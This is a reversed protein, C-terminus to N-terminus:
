GMFYGIKRKLACEQHHPLVPNQPGPVMCDPYIPTELFGKVAFNICLRECLFPVSLMLVYVFRSLAHICFIIYFLM